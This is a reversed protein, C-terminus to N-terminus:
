MNHEDVLFSISFRSSPEDASQRRSSDTKRVSQPPLGSVSGQASGSSNDATNRLTSGTSLSLATGPPMAAAPQKNQALLHVQKSISEKLLEIRQVCQELHVVTDNMSAISGHVQRTVEETVGAARLLKVQSGAGPNRDKKEVLEDKRQLFEAVSKRIEDMDDVGAVRRSATACTATDRGLGGIGSPRGGHSGRAQYHFDISSQLSHVYAELRAVDGEASSIRQRQRERLRASSMRSQYRRRSQPSLKALDIDEEGADMAATNSWASGRRSRPLTSGLQQDQRRKSSEM